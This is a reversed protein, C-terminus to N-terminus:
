TRNLSPPPLAVPVTEGVNYIEYGSEILNHQILTTARNQFRIVAWLKGQRISAAVVAGSREQPEGIRPCRRHPFPAENVPAM